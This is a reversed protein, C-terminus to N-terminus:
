KVSLEWDEYNEFMKISIMGFENYFVEIPQNPYKSRLKSMAIEIDYVCDYIDLDKETQEPIPANLLDDM